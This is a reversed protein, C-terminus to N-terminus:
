KLLDWISIYEIGKNEVMERIDSNWVIISGIIIDVKPLSDEISYCDLNMIKTKAYQKDIFYSVEMSERKMLGNIWRGVKGAGYIAIKSYSNNKIKGLVDEGICIKGIWDDYLEQMINGKVMNFFASMDDSLIADEIRNSAMNSGYKNSITNLINSENQIRKWQYQFYKEKGFKIENKLEFYINGLLKEKLFLMGRDDCNNIELLKRLDNNVLNVTWFSNERYSSM